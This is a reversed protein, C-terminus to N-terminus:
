SKICAEEEQREVDKTGVDNLVQNDGDDQVIKSVQGAVVPVWGM